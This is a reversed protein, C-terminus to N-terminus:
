YMKNKYIPAVKLDLKTGSLRFPRGSPATQIEISKKFKFGKYNM